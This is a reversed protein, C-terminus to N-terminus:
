QNGNGNESKNGLAWKGIHENNDKDQAIQGNNDTCWCIANNKPISDMIDRTEAWYKNHTEEDYSMDPAYTNIININPTNKLTKIQIEISRSSQRKIRTINNILQTKIAIAVGGKISKNQQLKTKGLEEEGSFFITYNEREIHDNRNNHTEQICAIDIKHDKTHKTVKDIM